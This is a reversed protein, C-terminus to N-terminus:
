RGLAQQFSDSYYIMAYPTMQNKPLFRVIVPEHWYADQIYGDGLDASSLILSLGLLCVPVIRVLLPRRKHHSLPKISAKCYLRQSKREM